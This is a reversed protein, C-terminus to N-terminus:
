KLFLCPVEGGGKREVMTLQNENIKGIVQFAGAVGGAAEPPTVSVTALYCPRSTCTVNLMTANETVVINISFVSPTAMAYKLDTMDSPECSTCSDILQSVNSAYTKTISKTLYHAQAVHIARLLHRAPFEINGCIQSDGTVTSSSSASKVFELYMWSLPRHMYANHPGLNQYVWEWYCGFAPDAGLMTSDNKSLAACDAADPMGHSVNVASKLIAASCNNFPCWDYSGDKQYFKRPHVTRAFDAAWYLPGSVSGSVSGTGREASSPHFRSFNFFSTTRLLSSDTDLLGGHLAGDSAIPFAIEVFWEASVNLNGYSPAYTATMLGGTKSSSPDDYRMSWNGNYFPSSTNVCTPLYPRTRNATGDCNLGAQDPVGWNVDYTANNVNMEFEKYFSTSMSPDVFFEFDNDHYPVENGNHAMPVNGYTYPERLKAGVYLYHNDYLAAVEAQQYEPVVNLNISAHKTIDVFSGSWSATSWFHDDLKGDITVSGDPVKQVALHRPYSPLFKWQALLAAAYVASAMRDEVGRECLEGGFFGPFSYFYVQVWCKGM